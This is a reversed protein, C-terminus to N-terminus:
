DEKRYDINWKDLMEFDAKKLGIKWFPIPEDHDGLYMRDRVTYSPSTLALTSDSEITNIGALDLMTHFVSNTSVPLEKHNMAQQYKMPFIKQYTDSFWIVYPIHLQYYTPIPSAHLYRNRSDDFIDEGHDSLYLLSTCANTQNLMEIIESLLYDTYYISNDYANRMEKKYSVRIGKVIDPQYLSFEKPYREHYNFHSGYTHLVIFLNEDTRMLEKQLYPLLEADHLSSLLGGKKFASM